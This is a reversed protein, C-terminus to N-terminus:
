DQGQLEAWEHPLAIFRSRFQTGLEPAVSYPVPRDSCPDGPDDVWDWTLTFRAGTGVTLNLPAEAIVGPTAHTTAWESSGDKNSASVQVEYAVGNTLGDITHANKRVTYIKYKLGKTFSDTVWEAETGGQPRWRLHIEHIPALETSTTEDWEVVIRRDDPVTRVISPAVPPDLTPDLTPDVPPDLTSGVMDVTVHAAGTLGVYWPNSARNLARVAITYRLTPDLDEILYDNVVGVQNRDIDTDDFLYWCQECESGRERWYILYGNVADGGDRTPADWDVRIGDLGEKAARVNKPPDPLDTVGGIAIDSWRGFGAETYARVRVEFKVLGRHIRTRNPRMFRFDAVNTIDTNKGSNLFSQKSVFASREWTDFFDDYGEVTSRWQVQYEQVESGGNDEPATWHVTIGRSPGPDVRVLLPKTAPRPPQVIASVSPSWPGVGPGYGIDTGSGSYARMQVEYETHNTLNSIRAHFRNLVIDDIEVHAQSWQQTGLERYQVHYGRITSGGNYAPERYYVDLTQDGPTLQHIVPADPVSSAHGLVPLSWEGNGRGDGADSDSANFARARVQVTHRVGNQLGTIEATRSAVDVTVNAASWGNPTGYFYPLYEVDYGIVPTGGDWDPDSLRVTLSGSANSRVSGVRIQDPEFAALGTVQAWAGPGDFNWHRVWMDYSQGLAFLERPQYTTYTPGALAEQWGAGAPPTGASAWRLETALVADLSDPERWATEMRLPRTRDAATLYRLYAVPAFTVREPAALPSLTSTPTGTVPEASVNADDSYLATVTVRYMVGAVLDGVQVNTVGALVDVPRPARPQFLHGSVPVVKIKYGDLQASVGVLTPADWQVSLARHEPTVIVNTPVRQALNRSEFDEILAEAVLQASGGFSANEPDSLVLEFTEPLGPEAVGDFRTPVEVRKTLDDGPRFVLTGRAREYDYVETATGDRTAYRMSVTRDGRKSLTIEFEATEGEVVQPSTATVEPLATGDFIVAITPYVPGATVRDYFSPHHDPHWHARAVFTEELEILDDTLAQVVFEGVGDYPIEISDLAGLDTSFDSADALAPIVEAQLYVTECMRKAPVVVFGIEDGEHGSGLLRGGIPERQRFVLPPPSSTDLSVCDDDLITGVGIATTM